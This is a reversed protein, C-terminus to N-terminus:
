VARIRLTDKTYNKHMGYDGKGTGKLNFMEKGEFTLRKWKNNIEKISLGKKKKM